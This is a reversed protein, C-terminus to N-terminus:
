AILQATHDKALSQGFYAPKMKRERDPLMQDIPHVVPVDSLLIKGLQHEPYGSVRFNRVPGRKLIESGEFQTALTIQRLGEKCRILRRSSSLELLVACSRASIV